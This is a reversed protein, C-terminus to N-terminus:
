KNLLDIQIYTADNVTVKGDHNYDALALNFVLGNGLDGGDEIAKTIYLQIATADDITIAGDGNVDGLIDEGEEPMYKEIEEYAALIKGINGTVTDEYVAKADAFAKTMADKDDGEPM